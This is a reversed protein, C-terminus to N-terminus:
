SLRPIIAPAESSTKPTASLSISADVGLIIPKVKLVPLIFIGEDEQTCLVRGSACTLICACLWPGLGLGLHFAYM